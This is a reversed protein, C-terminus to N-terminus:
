FIGDVKASCFVETADLDDACSEADDVDDTDEISDDGRKRDERAAKAAEPLLQADLDALKEEVEEEGPSFLFDVEDDSGTGFRKEKIYNKWFLLFFKDDLHKGKKPM